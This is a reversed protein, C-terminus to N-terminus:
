SPADESRSIGTKRVTSAFAAPRRRSIPIRAGSGLVAMLAGASNRALERVSDLRVLACRHARDFGYKRAREGLMQPSERHIYSRQGVISCASFTRHLANPACFHEDATSVIQHIDAPV